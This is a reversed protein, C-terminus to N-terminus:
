ATQTTSKGFLENRYDADWIQHNDPDIWYRNPQSQAHAMTVKEGASGGIVEVEPSATRQKECGPAETSASASATSTHQRPKETTFLPEDAKAGSGSADATTQASAQPNVPNGDVDYFVPQSAEYVPKGEADYGFFEPQNNDDSKGHFMLNINTMLKNVNDGTKLFSMELLLSMGAVLAAYGLADISLNNWIWLNGNEQMQQSINTLGTAADPSDVGIAGLLLRYKFLDLDWLFILVGPIALVVMWICNTLLMQNVVQVTEANNERKYRSRELLLKFCEYALHFFTFTIGMLIFAVLMGLGKTYDAKPFFAKMAPGILSEQYLPLTDFGKLEFAYSLGLYHIIFLWFEAFICIVAVFCCAFLAVINKFVQGLQHM